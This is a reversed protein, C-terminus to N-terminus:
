PRRDERLALGVATGEFVDGDTRDAARRQHTVLAFRLVIAGILVVALRLNESADDVEDAALRHVDVSQALLGDLQEVAVTQHVVGGVEVVQPGSLDGRQGAHALFRGLVDRLM